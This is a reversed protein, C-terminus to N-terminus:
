ETDEIAEIFPRVGEDAVWYRLRPRFNSYIGCMMRNAREWWETSDTSLLNLANGILSPVEKQSLLFQEPLKELFAILEPHAAKCINALAEEDDSEAEDGTEEEDYVWEMWGSTGNIGSASHSTHILPGTHTNSVTGLIRQTRRQFACNKKSMQENYSRIGSKEVLYKWELIRLTAAHTSDTLLRQVYTVTILVFDFIIVTSFCVLLTDEDLVGMYEMARPLLDTFKLVENLVFPGEPGSANSELMRLLAFFACFAMHWYNSMRMTIKPQKALAEAFSSTIACASHLTALVHIHEATSLLSRFNYTYIIGMRAQHLYLIYMARTQSFTAYLASLIPEPPPSYSNTDKRNFIRETDFCCRIRSDLNVIEELRLDSDVGELLIPEAINQVLNFMADIGSIGDIFAKYPCSPVCSCSAEIDTPVISPLSSRAPPGCSVDEDMDLVM